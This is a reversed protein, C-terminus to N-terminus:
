LGRPGGSGRDAVPIDREDSRHQPEYVEDTVDLEREPEVGDEVASAQLAEIWNEGAELADGGDPLRRDIPRPEHVGYLEGDDAALTDVDPLPPAALDEAAEFDTTVRADFDLEELPMGVEDLGPV